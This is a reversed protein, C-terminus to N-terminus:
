KSVERKERSNTNDFKFNQTSSINITLLNSEEPTDSKRSSSKRFITSFGYLVCCMFELNLTKNIMVTLPQDPDLFGETLEGETKKSDENNNKSSIYNDQSPKRWFMLYRYFKTESARILFMIFGLSLHLVISLKFLYNENNESADMMYKLTFVYYPAITVIYVLYYLFHRFVFKNRLNAAMNKRLCFRNILYLFSLVGIFVFWLFM